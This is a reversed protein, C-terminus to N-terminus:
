GEIVVGGRFNAGCGGCVFVDGAAATEISGCRPCPPKGDDDKEEPEPGATDQLLTMLTEHLALVQQQIARLRAHESPTM